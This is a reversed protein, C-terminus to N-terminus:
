LAGTEILGADELIEMWRDFHDLGDQIERQGFQHLNFWERIDNSKQQYEENQRIARRPATLRFLTDFSKFFPDFVLHQPGKRNNLWAKLTSALFCTNVVSVNISKRIDMTTQQSQISTDDTM